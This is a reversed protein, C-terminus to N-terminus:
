RIAEWAPSPLVAMCTRTNTSTGPLSTVGAAFKARVLSVDKMECSSLGARRSGSPTSRERQSKRTLLRPMVPSVPGDRGLRLLYSLRRRRKENKVSQRVPRATSKGWTARRTSATTAGAVPKRLARIASTVISRLLWSTSM